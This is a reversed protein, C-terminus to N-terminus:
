DLIFAPSQLRLFKKFEEVEEQSPRWGSNWEKRRSEAFKMACFSCCSFEKFSDFDSQTSMAFSCIPCFASSDSLNKDIYTKVTIENSVLSKQIKEM